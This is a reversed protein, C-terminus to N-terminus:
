ESVACDNVYCFEPPSGSPAWLHDGIIATENWDPTSRLERQAAEKQRCVILFIAKDNFLWMNSLINKANPGIPLSM